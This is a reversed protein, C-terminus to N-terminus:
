DPFGPGLMAAIRDAKVIGEQRMTEDAQAVLTRGEDGGLLRGLHRKNAATFLNCQSAELLTVFGQLSRVASDKDGELYAIYTKICAVQGDAIPLKEKALKKAQQQAIKLFPKRDKTTSALGLAAQALCSSSAVRSMQSRYLPSKSLRRSLDEAIEFAKRHNGVYHEIWCESMGAHFRIVDFDQRPWQALALVVQERAKDVQDVALYRIAGAAARQYTLLNIHNREQGYRIWTDWQRQLERWHGLIVYTSGLVNRTQTLLYTIDTGTCDEVFAKEARQLYEEARPMEGLNFSVHGTVFQVNASVFPTEVKPSLQQALNLYQEIVSRDRVGEVSLWTVESGLGLVIQEVIGSQLALWLLRSSFAAAQVTDAAWLGQVATGCARLETLQKKSVDNLQRERFKLGHLKIRARNFLLDIISATTRSHLKLGVSRLVRDLERKGETLHGTAMWQDAAQQRLELQEETSAGEAAKMFVSAAEAGRGANALATGLRTQLSRQNERDGPNLELAIRYLRAANEFAM